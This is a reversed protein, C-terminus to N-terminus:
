KTVGRVSLCFSRVGFSESPIRSSIWYRYYASASGSGRTELSSTWYMGMGGEQPGFGANGGANPFFISQGNINSTFELGEVNNITIIKTECNEVLERWDERTPMRWHQGLYFTAADDEPEIVTKNDVTGRSADICYKLIRVSGSSRDYFKYTELTNPTIEAWAFKYGFGEQTIAGVNMDGWKLGSPLGLDIAKIVDKTQCIPEKDPSPCGTLTIMLIGLCVFLFHKKM